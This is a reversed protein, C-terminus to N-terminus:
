AGQRFRRAPWFIVPLIILTLIVAAITSAAPPNYSGVYILRVYAGLMIGMRIKGGWSPELTLSSAIVYLVVANLYWYFMVVPIQSALPAPFYHAGVAYSAALDFLWLATVSAIGFLAMAGTMFQEDVPLHCSLRFRRRSVEPYFQAIGIIVASLLIPVELRSFFVASKEIIDLWMAIPERMTFAGRVRLWHYAVAALHMIVLVAFM